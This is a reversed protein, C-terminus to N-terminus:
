QGAPEFAFCTKRADGAGREIFSVRVRTGVAISAPHLVDVGMIQASISPGEDLQVVGSCYPHDRDYGAKIMATPAIHIVTYACLHGWGSLEIWQISAAQIEQCRPCLPRPPMYVTGCITCQAGMLKHQDLFAQFGAGILPREDM